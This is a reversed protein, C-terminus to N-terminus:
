NVFKDIRKSHRAYWNILMQNYRQVKSHHSNLTARHSPLGLQPFPKKIQILDKDLFAIGDFWEGGGAPVRKGDVVDWLPNSYVGDFTIVYYDMDKLFSASKPKMESDYIVLDDYNEVKLLRMDQSKIFSYESFNYHEIVAAIIEQNEKENEEKLEEAAKTQGRNTLWEIKNDVSKLKVLTLNERIDHM